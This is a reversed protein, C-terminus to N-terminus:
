LGEARAVAGTAADACVAPKEGPKAARADIKGGGTGVRGPGCDDATPTRRVGAENRGEMAAAAVGAMAPGVVTKAAVLSIRAARIMRDM